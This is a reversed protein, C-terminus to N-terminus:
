SRGGGPESAQSCYREVAALMADPDFPKNLYDAAGLSRGLADISSSLSSLDLPM